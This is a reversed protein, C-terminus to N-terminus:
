PIVNMVDKVTIWDVSRKSPDIHVGIRAEAQMTENVVALKGTESGLTVLAEPVDKGGFLSVIAVFENEQPLIALTHINRERTETTIGLMHAIESPLKDTVFGKLTHDSWQERDNALVTRIRDGGDSSFTWEPGLILHGLGLIMKFIGRTWIDLDFAQISARFWDSEEIEFHKTVDDITKIEEGSISYITEGKKVSKALIGSFIEMVQDKSGSVSRKVHTKEKSQGTATNFSCEVKGDSHITIRSPKKNDLSHAHWVIPPIKGSSGALQLMHRKISVPLLNIFKADIDRGFDNNYKKSVDMTTFANSGGLAYPVIHEKSRTMEDAPGNHNLESYCYICQTM